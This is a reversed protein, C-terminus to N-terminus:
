GSNTATSRRLLWAACLATVIYTFAIAFVVDSLFHRGAMIRAFGFLAGSGIGGILWARRARRSRALFFGALPFSTAAADGSVFSCNRKCQDSVVFAPTFQRDGGFEQLTAPRARGSYEKLVLNVLMGPGVAFAVLLFLIPRRVAVLRKQLTSGLVSPLWGALLGIVLIAVSARGMLTVGRSIEQSILDYEVVFFGKDDTFARSIELDLQPFFYFVAAVVLLALVLWPPMTARLIHRSHPNDQTESM